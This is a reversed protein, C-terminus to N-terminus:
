GKVSLAYFGKKDKEEISNLLRQFQDLEHDTKFKIDYTNHFFISLVVTGDTIVVTYGDEASSVEIGDLAYLGDKKDGFQTVIAFIKLAQHVDFRQDSM